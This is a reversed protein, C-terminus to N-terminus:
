NDSALEMFIKQANIESSSSGPRRQVYRGTPRLEWAHRNDALLTGLIEQLDKSLAPDQVPTLVEIRRDLNRPMWDASGIYTEAEGRNHFYFIRSHELFRGVVSIVNIQDSIGLVAPRLCCISQIILDIKVGAQSAEYLTKILEADVLAGLKAVIRSPAGAIAAETERRILAVLQHRLNVPAVLLQRYHRQRAHGTLYNFLESLDAGLEQRCSFLGVDTYSRATKPNYDGTGIHVYRRLDDGEQRVVLMVKAHTKLGVLGYVVHIGARELQRAWQINNAEDFSAQLEVLAAVQKGNEAAAILASLIPSDASTRYLTMKIALVAPDQAAQEIFRQLSTTFSHYPYHLLRDGQRILNFIDEYSSKPSASPLARLTAPTVAAWPSYRLEPLPLSTLSRLDRLCFLGDIEYIDPETLALAQKLKARIREPTNAQIELRVATAGVQRRRLEQEVAQLVDDRDDELELEANRTIRFCYHSLVTLGVFLSQLHHAIIQEIPVGAWVMPGYGSTPQLAEPLAVFRPLLAPIKIQALQQGAQEDQVIVALNLSLNSLYPFPHSPDIALPTLVPFVTEHFYQGLYAQQESNLRAYNLLCIGRGALQPCIAQEFHRHHQAVMPRLRDAIAELQEEPGRRDPASNTLDQLQKLQQKLAAVRVMFFEDLNSCFIAMFNLRELLPTRPDFAEHLVRNNFELWSLERNFYYESNTLDIQPNLQPVTAAKRKARPM